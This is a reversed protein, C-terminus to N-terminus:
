HVYFDLYWDIFEKVGEKISTNPKYDIWSELLKTDAYTEKVDGMQMPLYNIKAKLNLCEEIAAIYEM